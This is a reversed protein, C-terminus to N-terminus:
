YSKKKKQTEELSTLVDNGLKRLEFVISLRFNEDSYFKAM